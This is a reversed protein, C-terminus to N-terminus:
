RAPCPTATLNYNAPGVKRKQKLLRLGLSEPVLENLDEAFFTPVDGSEIGRYPIEAAVKPADIKEPGAGKEGLV